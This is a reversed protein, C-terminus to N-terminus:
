DIIVPCADMTFIDNIECYSFPDNPITDPAVGSLSSADVWYITNAGEDYGRAVIKGNVTILDGISIESGTDDSPTTDDSLAKGIQGGILAGVLVALAAVIAALLIALLCFIVTACGIAAAIAAGAIIGGILGVAGGVTAGKAANCVRDTFYYCRIIESKRPFDDDTCFVHAANNEVKDWYGSKVVLDIRDHMATFPFLEDLASDFDQVINHVVGAVCESTGEKEICRDDLYIVITTFVVIGALLGATAGGASAGGLFAVIGPLAEAFKVFSVVGGIIGAIILIISVIQDLGEEVIDLEGCRPSREICAM